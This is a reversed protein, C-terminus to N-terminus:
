GTSLNDPDEAASSLWLLRPDLGAPIPVIQSLRRALPHRNWDFALLAATRVPRRVIQDAFGEFALTAAFPHRHRSVGRVPTISGAPRFALTRGRAVAVALQGDNFDDVIWVGIRIRRGRWSPPALPSLLRSFSFRLGCRERGVGCEVEPAQVGLSLRQAVPVEDFAALASIDVAVLAVLAHVAAGGILLFLGLDAFAFSLLPFGGLM